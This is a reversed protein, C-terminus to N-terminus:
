FIVLRTTFGFTLGLFVTTGVLYVFITGCYYTWLSLAEAGCVKYWVVSDRKSLILFLGSVRISGAGELFDTTKGTIESFDFGILFVVVKLYVVKSIDEATAVLVRRRPLVKSKFPIPTTGKFLYVFVGPAIIFFGNSSSIFLSFTLPRLVVVLLIYDEIM